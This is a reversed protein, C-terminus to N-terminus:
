DSKISFFRSWFLRNSFSKMEVTLFSLAFNSLFPAVSREWMPFPALSPPLPPSSPFSIFFSILIHVDVLEGCPIYDNHLTVKITWSNSLGAACRLMVWMTSTKCVRLICSNPWPPKHEPKLLSLCCSLTDRLFYRMFSLTFGCTSLLSSFTVCVLFLCHRVINDQSVKIKQAWTVM